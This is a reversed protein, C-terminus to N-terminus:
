GGERADREDEAVVAALHALFLTELEEVPAEPLTVDPFEWGMGAETNFTIEAASPVIRQRLWYAFEAAHGATCNEISAGQPATMAIVEFDEGGLTIGFSLSAGTAGPGTGEGSFKLFEEANRERLADASSELTMGWDGDDPASLIFTM